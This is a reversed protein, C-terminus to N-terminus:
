RRVRVTGRTVRGKREAAALAEVVLDEAHKKSTIVSGRLDIIIQQPPREYDARTLPEPRGLRNDLLNLGPSLM